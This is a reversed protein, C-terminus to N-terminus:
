IDSVFIKCDQISKSDGVLRRVIHWFVYSPIGLIFHFQKMGDHRHMIYFDIISCNGFDKTLRLWMQAENLSM